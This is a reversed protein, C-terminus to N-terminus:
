KRPAVATLRTVAARVDAVAALLVSLRARSESLRDLSASLRASSEGANPAEESLKRASEEIRSVAVGLSRAFSRFGRLLERTRVFVLVIGAVVAALAIIGSALALLAV